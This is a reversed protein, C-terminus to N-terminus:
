LIVTWGAMYPWIDIVSQSVHVMYLCYLQQSSVWIICAYRIIRLIKADRYFHIFKAKSERRRTRLDIILRRASVYYRLWDWALHYLLAVSIIENEDLMTTLIFSYMHRYVYECWPHIYIYINITLWYIDKWQIWMLSTPRDHM